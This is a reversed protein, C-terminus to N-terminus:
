GLAQSGTRRNLEENPWSESARTGPFRADKELMEIRGDCTERLHSLEDAVDIPSHLEPRERGFALIAQGFFENLGSKFNQLAADRGRSPTTKLRTLEERLPNNLAALFQRMGRNDAELHQGAHDVFQARVCEDSEARQDFYLRYNTIGISIQVSAPAACFIQPAAEVVQDDVHVQFTLTPVIVLLPHAERMQAIVGVDSAIQALNAATVPVEQMKIHETGFMTLRSGPLEGCGGDAANALSPLAVVLSLALASEAVRRLMWLRPPRDSKQFLKM